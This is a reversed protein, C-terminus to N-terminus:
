TNRKMAEGGWTVSLRATTCSRGCCGCVGRAGLVEAICCRVCASLERAGHAEWRVGLARLRQASLHRTRAHGADRVLPSEGDKDVRTQNPAAVLERPHALALRVLCHIRHV